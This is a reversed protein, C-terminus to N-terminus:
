TTELKKEISARIKEKFMSRNWKKAHDRLKKSDFYGQNSEFTKVAEILAGVSQEYFFVGSPNYRSDSNSLELPIVTELVGGEGYAIVPRGSAMAELPTIGFDEEGPFIFAKCRSFYEAVVEDPQWGLFEINSHAISKLRKEEQGKGIILLRKKLQNFAQIAIDLRKYPAFASVVLYFDDTKNAISFRKIDVPPHIVEADRRYYKKIRKAVHDSICIFHDVRNNATIDWLRLYHALIGVFPKKLRGAYKNGFYEHYMDWAYRMPTLIYSIHLANPGPIVGKAACHSISLLLDYRKVNLCEIASPCLPLYCRYKGKVFPLHQLFSTQIHMKEISESVSGKIHLLTFLDADPFLESFVELCREGGRMGTLWDHVIAIKM